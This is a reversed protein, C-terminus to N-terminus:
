ERERRRVRRVAEVPDLDLDVFRGSLFESLSLEREEDTATAGTEDDFPPSGGRVGSGM